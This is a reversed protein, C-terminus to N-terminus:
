ETTTFLSHVMGAAHLHRLSHTFGHTHILTHQERGENRYGYKFVCTVVSTFKDECKPSHQELRHGGLSALIQLEHLVNTCPLSWVHHSATRFWVLHLCAGVLLCQLGASTTSTPFYTTSGPKASISLTCGGTHVCAINVCALVNHVTSPLLSGCRPCVLCTLVQTHKSYRVVQIDRTLSGVWVM